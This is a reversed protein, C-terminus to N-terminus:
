DPGNPARPQASSSLSLTLFEDDVCGAAVLSGYARPGGECLVTRVDYLDRLQNLLTRIDVTEAGLDLVDVRAVTSGLAGARSAGRSTTALVVHADSCSFIAAADADVDGELSLFAQLPM